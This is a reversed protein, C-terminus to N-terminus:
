SIISGHQDLAPGDKSFIAAFCCKRTQGHRKFLKYALFCYEWLKIFRVKLTIEKEWRMLM